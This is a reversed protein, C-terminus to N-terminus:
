FLDAHARARRRLIRHPPVRGALRQRDRAMPRAFHQLVVRVHAHFRLPIGDVFQTRPQHPLWQDHRVIQGLFHASPATRSPTVDCDTDCNPQRALRSAQLKNFPITPARLNSSRVEQERLIQAPLSSTTHLSVFHYIRNPNSPVVACLDLGTACSLLPPVATLKVPEHPCEHPRM